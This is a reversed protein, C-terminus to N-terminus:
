SHSTKISSDLLAGDVLSMKRDCKDAFNHDHTVVILSKKLQKCCNLLLDEIQKSTNKDLNGTPEDALILSPNNVLARAIAARQKEGGSLHRVLFDKRHILQVKELLEIAELYAPSNKHINRRAIKAKILLNDLLTEDELLNGSQFVFGVRHSRLKSIDHQKLLNGFFSLHGESPSELTGLIHLLTSKGSGSAGVIAVTECPSISLNVGKLIEIKEPSSFSKKINSAVLVKTKTM